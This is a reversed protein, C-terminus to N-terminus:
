RQLYPLIQEHIDGNCAAMITGDSNANLTNGDWDTVIGGAGEIIPILSAYDHFKLNAEIIIDIHGSSLLGFGYCDGGWYTTKVKESVKYFHKRQENDFLDPSTSSLVANQIHDIQRTKSNQGNFFTPYNEAGIWRDKLIPQDIIGVIPVNNYLLTILTGFTYMGAIFARTGDIPDLVWLFDADEQYSGFEEGIIGHHPYKQSIADRLAKEITRDAITVPSEDDKQIISFDKRFYQQAIPRAIDALHCAFERYEQISNHDKKKEVSPM